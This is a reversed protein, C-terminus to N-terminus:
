ENEDNHQLLQKPNRYHRISRNMLWKPLLSLRQSHFLYEPDGNPYYKSYRCPSPLRVIHTLQRKYVDLHTYSVPVSVTMFSSQFIITSYNRIIIMNLLIKPSHRLLVVFGPQRFLTFLRLRKSM